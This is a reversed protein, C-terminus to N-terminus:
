DGEYEIGEAHLRQRLDRLARYVLNRAKAESWGLLRGIEATGFGRLHLGLARRRNDPLQGLVASVRTLVQTREVQIEHSEVALAMGPRGNGSGITEAEPLAEERRAKVRRLADITAAHAVRYLYSAPDTIERESAVARWLRLRADQEVDDLQIGLGRPCLRVLTRHLFGGHERLFAQFRVEAHSASPPEEDGSLPIQRGM